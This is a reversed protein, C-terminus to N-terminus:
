TLVEEVQSLRLYKLLVSYDILVLGESDVRLSDAVERGEEQKTKTQENKLYSEVPVRVQFQHEEKLKAPDGEEDPVELDLRMHLVSSLLHLDEVVEHKQDQNIVIKGEKDATPMLNCLEVQADRSTGKETQAKCDVDNGDHQMGPFNPSKPLGDFLRVGLEPPSRGDVRSSDLQRLFNFLNPSGINIVQLFLFIERFQYM